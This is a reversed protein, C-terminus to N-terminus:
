NGFYMYSIFFRFITIKSLKSFMFGENESFFNKEKSPDPLDDPILCLERCLSFLGGNRSNTPLGGRWVCVYLM